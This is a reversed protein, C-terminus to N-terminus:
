WSSRPSNEGAASLKVVSTANSESSNEESTAPSMSPFTSCENVSRFPSLTASRTTKESSPLLTDLLREATRPVNRCALVRHRCRTRVPLWRRTGTPRCRGAQPHAPVIEIAVAPDVQHECGDIRIEKLAAEPLSELPEHAIVDPQIKLEVVHVPTEVAVIGVGVRLIANSPAGLWRSGPHTGSTM